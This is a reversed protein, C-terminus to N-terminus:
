DKIAKSRRQSVRPMSSGSGWRVRSPNPSRNVRSEGPIWEGRCGQALPCLRGRSVQLGDLHIGERSAPSIERDPDPSIAQEKTVLHGEGYNTFSVWITFIIPYITFLAMFVLGILMWRVPYAQRRLIVFNVTVAIIFLAAAFPCYGLSILRRLFWVVAADVAILLAFSILRPLVPKSSSAKTKPTKPSAHVAM